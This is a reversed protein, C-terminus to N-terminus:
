GIRQSDNSNGNELYQAEDICRHHAARAGCKTCGYAKRPGWLACHREEARRSYVRRKAREFELESPTRDRDRKDPSCALNEPPVRDPIVCRHTESTSGCMECRYLSGGRGRRVSFTQRESYTYAHRSQAQAEGFLELIGGRLDGPDYSM